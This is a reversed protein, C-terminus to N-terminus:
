PIILALTIMFLATKFGLIRRWDIESFRKEFVEPLHNAAEGIIIEFNRIIADVTKSDKIFTM